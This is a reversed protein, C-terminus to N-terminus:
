KSWFTVLLRMIINPGLCSTPNSSPVRWNQIYCRLGSPWKRRDGYCVGTIVTFYNQFTGNVEKASDGTKLLSPTVNHQDDAHEWLTPTEDKLVAHNAKPTGKIDTARDWLYLQQTKSAHNQEMLHITVNPRAAIYLSFSYLTNCKLCHCNKNQKIRASVNIKKARQWHWRCCGGWPWNCLLEM